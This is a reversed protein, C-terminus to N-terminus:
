IDLGFYNNPELYRIIPIGGTLPGCGIELIKHSPKLGQERLFAIQFCRHEEWQGRFGMSEELVNKHRVDLVEQLNFADFVLGKLALKTKRGTRSLIMLTVGLIVQGVGCHHSLGVPNCITMTTLNLCPYQSLAFIPVPDPGLPDM